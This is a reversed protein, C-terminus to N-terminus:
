GIADRFINADRRLASRFSVSLRAGPPRHQSRSRHERCPLIRDIGHGLFAATAAECGLAGDHAATDIGQALGSVITFGNSGLEAALAHANQRGGRTPNRSGVIALAPLQLCEPHGEIFLAIPPDPIQHLLSPYNCHGFPVLHHGPTELWATASELRRQNPRGIAAAVRESVGARQLDSQTTDVIAPIDGFHARLSVLERASVGANLLTLWRQM